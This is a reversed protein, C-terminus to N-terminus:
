VHNEKLIELLEMECFHGDNKKITDTIGKHLHLTKNIHAVKNVGEFLINIDHSIVIKTQPLTQLLAYIEKQGELDISATPEDLILINPNKALARALLVRQRQGGSLEKIKRNKLHLVQMKELQEQAITRDEKNYFLKNKQMRGQLVIDLVNIPMDMNFNIYQPLYGINNRAKIPTKGEIMITGSSPSRLGLLLKVFTTKGGGNPGIIALYDGKNVTLNIDQLIPTDHYTFRLNTVEIQKKLVERL